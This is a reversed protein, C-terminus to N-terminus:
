QRVITVEPGLRELVRLTGPDRSGDDVVVVEAPRLTQDAVSGLTEELTGGSDRCPIVVSVDSM